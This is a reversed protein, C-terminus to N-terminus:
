VGGSARPVCACVRCFKESCPMPGDCLCCMVNALSLCGHERPSEFKCGWRALLRLGVGEVVHGGPEAFRIGVHVFDLNEEHQLHCYMCCSDHRIPDNSACKQRNGTATTNVGSTPFM